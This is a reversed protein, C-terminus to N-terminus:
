NPPFTRQRRKSAPDPKIPEPSMYSYKSPESDPESEPGYWWRGMNPWQAAMAMIALGAALILALSSGFSAVRGYENHLAVAALKLISAALVIAALQHMYPNQKM